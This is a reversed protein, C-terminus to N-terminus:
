NPVKMLQEEIWDLLATQERKIILESNWKRKRFEDHNEKRRRTIEARLHELYARLSQNGLAPRPARGDCIARLDHDIVFATGAITRDIALWPIPRVRKLFSPVDIGATILQADTRRQGDAVADIETLLEAEGRHVRVQRATFQSTKRNPTARAARVAGRVSPVRGAAAEQQIYATVKEPQAALTRQRARRTSAASNMAASNTVRHTVLEAATKPGPKTRPGEGLRRELEIAMAASLIQIDRVNPITADYWAVWNTSHLSEREDLQEALRLAGLADRILGAKEGAETLQGAVVFEVVGM